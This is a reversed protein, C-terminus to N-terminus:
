EVANMSFIGRITGDEILEVFGARRDKPVELFLTLIVAGAAVEKSLNEAKGLDEEYQEIYVDKKNLYKEILYKLFCEGKPTINYTEKKKFWGM